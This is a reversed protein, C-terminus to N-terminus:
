QPSLEFESDHTSPVASRVQRRHPISRLLAVSRIVTIWCVMLVLSGVALHLSAIDAPKRLLVTLIGLTIQTPILAILMWAPRTLASQSPVRRLITFVLWGTAITVLLAGIRHAFHIWIQFLTVRNLGLDVGFRHIAERRFADNIALPPLIKGFSLPFDPIALGADNHRMVAGILLQVAVTISAAIALAMVQAVAVTQEPRLDKPTTWFRSTM